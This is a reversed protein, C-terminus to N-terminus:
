FSKFISRTWNNKRWHDIHCTYEVNKVNIVDDAM